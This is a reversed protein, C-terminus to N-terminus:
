ARGEKPVPLSQSRGIAQRDRQWEAAGKSLDTISLARSPVRTGHTPTAAVRGPATATREHNTASPGPDAHDGSEAAVSQRLRRVRGGSEGHPGRLPHLWHVPTEDSM